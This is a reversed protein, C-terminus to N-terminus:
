RLIILHDFSIAEIQYIDGVLVLLKFKPCCRMYRLIHLNLLFVGSWVTLHTYSTWNWTRFAFWILGVTIKQWGSLPEGIRVYTLSGQPAPTSGTDSRATAWKTRESDAGPLKNGRWVGKFFCINLYGRQASPSTQRRYIRFVIILRIVYTNFRRKKSAINNNCHYM